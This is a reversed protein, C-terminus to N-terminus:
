VSRKEQCCEKGAVIFIITTITFGTAPQLVIEAMFGVLLLITGSILLAIFELAGGDELGFDGDLAWIGTSGIGDTILGSHGAGGHTIGCTSDGHGHARIFSIVEGHLM